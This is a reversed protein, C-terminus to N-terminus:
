ARLLRVAHPLTRAEPLWFDIAAGALVLLCLAASAPGATRRVAASLWGERQAKFALAGGLSAFALEVAVGLLVEAGFLGVVAFGLLMGLAAAVALLLALPILVIAAEDASVM